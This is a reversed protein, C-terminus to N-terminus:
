IKAIGNLLRKYEEKSKSLIIAWFLLKWKGMFSNLLGNNRIQYKLLYIVWNLFNVRTFEDKNSMYLEKCIEYHVNYKDQISKMSFIGGDHIRYVGFIQNFYYGKGAKLLHYNLHVDRYFKYDAIDDQKIIDSRYVLTLTKTIWDNLTDNLTFTYGHEECPIPNRIMNIKERTVVNESVFGGCCLSYGHNAELFDVQKQLKLPDTWYDDGECLAVYKGQKEHPKIYKATKPNKQWQNEIQYTPKILHPFKAEYERIIDATRDSSADDQILIEVKFNTEQMLFGEITDLIYNEHMYTLCLISVLPLVKDDWVQDAIKISTVRLLDSEKCKDM